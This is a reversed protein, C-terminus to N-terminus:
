VSLKMSEGIICSKRMVGKRGLLPSNCCVGMRSLVAHANSYYSNNLCVLHYTHEDEYDSYEAITPM